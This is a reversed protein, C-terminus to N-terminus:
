FKNHVLFFLKLHVLFNELLCNGRAKLGKEFCNESFCKEQINYSFILSEKLERFSKISPMRLKLYGHELYIKFSHLKDRKGCKIEKIKKRDSFFNKKLYYFKVSLLDSCYTKSNYKGNLQKCLLNIFFYNKCNILKIFYFCSFHFIHSSLM